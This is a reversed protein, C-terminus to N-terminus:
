DRLKAREEGPWGAIGSEFTCGERPPMDWDFGLSQWWWCYRRPCADLPLNAAREKDNHSSDYVNFDRPTGQTAM